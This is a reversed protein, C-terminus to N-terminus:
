CNSQTYDSTCCNLILFVCSVSTGLYRELIHPLFPHVVTSVASNARSVFCKQHLWWILFQTIEEVTISIGEVVVM